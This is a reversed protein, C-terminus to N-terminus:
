PQVSVQATTSNYDAAPRGITASTPSVTVEFSLQQTVGGRTWTYVAYGIGLGLVLLVIGAFIKMALPEVGREGRLFRKKM